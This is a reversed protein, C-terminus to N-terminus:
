AVLCRTLVFITRDQCKCVFSEGNVTRQATVALSQDPHDQRQVVSARLICKGLHEMFLDATARHQILATLGSFDTCTVRYLFPDNAM